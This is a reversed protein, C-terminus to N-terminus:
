GWQMRTWKMGFYGHQQLLITMFSLCCFHISAMVIEITLRSMILFFLHSRTCRNQLLSWNWLHHILFM